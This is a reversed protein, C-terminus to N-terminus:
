KHPQESAIFDLVRVLKDHAISADAGNGDAQQLMLLGAFLAVLLMVELLRSKKVAEM